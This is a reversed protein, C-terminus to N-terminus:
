EGYIEKCELAAMLKAAVKSPCFNDAVCHWDTEGWQVIGRLTDLISMKILAVLNTAARKGANWANTCFNAVQTGFSVFSPKVTNNWLNSIWDFLGAECGEVQIAIAIILAHSFRM